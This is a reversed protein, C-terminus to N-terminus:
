WLNNEKIRFEKLFFRRTGYEVELKKITAPNLFQKVNHFSVEPFIESELIESLTEMYTSLKKEIKYDEVFKTFTENSIEM